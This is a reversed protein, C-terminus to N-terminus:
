GDNIGLMHAVKRAADAQSIGALYAALSIVDGGGDGTAFDAWRGSRLNIKFSGLRRDPRRPNKAVWEGGDHRGDPLWRRVLDPLASLAADNIRAFDIRGKV